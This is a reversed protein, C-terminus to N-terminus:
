SRPDTFESYVEIGSDSSQIQEILGTTPTVPSGDYFSLLSTIVSAFHFEGVQRSKSLQM